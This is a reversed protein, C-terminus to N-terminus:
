DAGYKILRASTRLGHLKAQETAQDQRPALRRQIEDSSASPLKMRYFTRNHSGCWIWTWWTWTLPRCATCRVLDSWHMAECSTGILDGVPLWRHLLVPLSVVYKTACSGSSCHWQGGLRNGRPENKLMLWVQLEWLVVIQVNFVWSLCGVRHCRITSQFQVLKIIALFIFSPQMHVWPEVFQAIWVWDGWSIILWRLSSSM